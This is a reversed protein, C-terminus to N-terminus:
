FMWEGQGWQSNEPRCLMDIIVEPKIEMKWDEIADQGEFLKTQGNWSVMIPLCEGDPWVEITLDHCHSLLFEGSVITFEGDGNRSWGGDGQGESCEWSYELEESADTAKWVVRSVRVNVEEHKAKPAPRFGKQKVNDSQSAYQNCPHLGARLADLNACLKDMCEATIFVAAVNSATGDHGPCILCSAAKWQRKRSAGDKESPDDSDHGLGQKIGGCHTTNMPSNGRKAFTAHNVIKDGFEDASEIDVPSVDRSGHNIFVYDHALENYNQTKIATNLQASM